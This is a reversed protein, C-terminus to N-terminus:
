WYGLVSGNLLVMLFIGAVVFAVDARKLYGMKEIFWGRIGYVGHYVMASVFVCAAVPSSPYLEYVFFFPTHMAFLHAFVFFPVLVATLIHLGYFFREAKM